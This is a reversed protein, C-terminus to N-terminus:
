RVYWSKVLQLHLTRRDECVNPQSAKTGAVANIYM